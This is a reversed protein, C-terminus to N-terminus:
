AADQERKWAHWAAKAVTAASRAHERHVGLERAAASLSIDDDRRAQQLLAAVLPATDPRTAQLHAVFRDLFDAHEITEHAADDSHSRLHSDELRIDHSRDAALAARLETIPRNTLRQWSAALEAFTPTAIQTRQAADGTALRIAPSRRGFEKTRCVAAIRSRALSRTARVPDPEGAQCADWFAHNVISTVDDTTVNGAERRAAATRSSLSRTVHDLETRHKRWLDDFTPTPDAPSAPQAVTGLSSTAM